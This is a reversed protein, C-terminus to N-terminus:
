QSSKQVLRCMKKHNEWVKKLKKQIAKFLWSDAVMKVAFLNNSVKGDNQSMMDLM